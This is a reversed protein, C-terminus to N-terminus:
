HIIHYRHVCFEGQDNLHVVMAAMRTFVEKYYTSECDIECALSACLLALTSSPQANSDQQKRLIDLLCQSSYSVDAPANSTKTLDNYRLLAFAEGARLHRLVLRILGEDISGDNPISLVQHITNCYKEAEKGFRVGAVELARHSLERSEIM